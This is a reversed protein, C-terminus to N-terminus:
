PLLLPLLTAMPDGIMLFPLIAPFLFLLLPLKLSVWIQETGIEELRKIHELLEEDSPTRRPARRQNQVVTEGNPLVMTDTLIWGISNGVYGM